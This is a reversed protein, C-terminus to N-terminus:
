TTARKAAMRAPAGCGVGKSRPAALVSARSLTTIAAGCSVIRRRAPGRQVTFPYSATLSAPVDSCCASACACTPWSTLRL